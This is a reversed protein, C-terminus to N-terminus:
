RISPYSFSIIRGESTADHCWLREGDDTIGDACRSAAAANIRSPTGGSNLASESLGIMGQDSSVLYAGQGEVWAMGAVDFASQDGTFPNTASDFLKTRGNASTAREIISNNTGSGGRSAVIAFPDGSDDYATTVSQMARSENFDAVNSSVTFRNASNSTFLDVTILSVGIVPGTGNRGVVYLRAVNSNDAANVQAALGNCQRLSTTTRITETDSALFLQIKAGSSSNNACAAILYDTKTVGSQTQEIRFAEMDQYSDFSTFDTTSFTSDGRKAQLLRANSAFQQLAFIAHDSDNRPASIAIM